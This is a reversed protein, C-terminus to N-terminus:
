EYLILRVFSIGTASILVGFKFTCISSLRAEIRVVCGFNLTYFKTGVCLRPIDNTKTTLMGRELQLSNPWYQIHERTQIQEEFSQNYFMSRHHNSNWTATTSVQARIRAVVHFEFSGLHLTM